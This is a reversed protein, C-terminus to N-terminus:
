SPLMGPTRQWKYQAMFSVVEVPVKNVEFWKSLSNVIQHAATNGMFIQENAWLLLELKDIAKIWMREDDTLEVRWGMAREIRHEVIAMRKSFEADEAKMCGPMDGTWREPLDHFMIALMVNRTVLPMLAWALTMMDFSHQGNSYTGHHPMTHCREVKSCERLMAVKKNIDM